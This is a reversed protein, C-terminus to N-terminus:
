ITSRWIRPRARRAGAPWTGPSAVVLRRVEGVRRAILSSDALRGIRVALDLGQEIPVGSSNSSV